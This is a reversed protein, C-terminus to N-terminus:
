RRGRRYRLFIAFDAVPRRQPELGREISLRSRRRRHHALPFSGGCSAARKVGASVAAREAIAASTVFRPSQRNVIPCIAASAPIQALLTLFAMRAASAGPTSEISSLRSM